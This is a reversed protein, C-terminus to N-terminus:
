AAENTEELENKRKTYYAVLPKQYEAGLETKLEACVAVLEEHTKAGDIKGQSIPDLETTDAPEQADVSDGESIEYAEMYVYRRMYTHKGGLNQIAQGGQISAEATPTKWVMCDDPNDSNMVKLIAVEQEGKKPYINFFTTIGNEFNLRNVAPMFDGLQYYKAKTHKNEGTKKLELTGLENRVKSMRQHINLTKEAPM